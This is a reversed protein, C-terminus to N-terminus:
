KRISIPGAVPIIQGEAVSSKQGDKNVLTGDGFVKTGDSMMLSTGPRVYLKSGDKQVFVKGNQMTISDTAPLETGSLKLLQGDLLRLKTGDKRLVTGDPYVQSGDALTIRQSVLAKDGDKILIVKGKELTVHDVVPVITGDPSILTGDANLVQGEQLKREKGGNVTFTGNTLIRIAGSFTITEEMPIKAGAHEAFMKGDQFLVWEAGATRM